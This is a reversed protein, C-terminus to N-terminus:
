EGPVPEAPAPPKRLRRSIVRGDTFIDAIIVLLLVGALIGITDM